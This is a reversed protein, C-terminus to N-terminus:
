YKELHWQTLKEMIAPMLIIPTWDLLKMANSIDLTYTTQDNAPGDFRPKIFLNKELDLGLMDFSARVLEMVKVSKGTAIILDRQIDKVLMLLMARVYEEAWGWDRESCVSELTLFEQDGKYIRCASKAIKATVFREDRYISEHNSLIASVAKVGYQYRYREVLAMGLAKTIGYNNKPNFETDENVKGNLNEGFVEISSAYLIKCSNLNDKAYELAIKLYGTNVKEAFQYNKQCESITSLAAFVFIHSPKTVKLVDEFQNLNTTVFTCRSSQLDVRPRPKRSVCIVKCNQESLIKQLLLGDQGNSGVIMVTDNLSFGLPSKISSM